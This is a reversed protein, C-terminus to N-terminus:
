RLPIRGAATAGGRYFMVFVSVTLLIALFGLGFGSLAPVTPVTPTIQPTNAFTWTIIDHNEYGAGTGASFGAYATNQGLISALNIPYNNLATFSAGEAPDTLTVTLASGNYSINVTWLDGNSLCGPQQYTGFVCNGIGYVNVLATDTVNGDTDIAVHNSSTDDAGNEFTDFEIGISNGALGGYGLAYGGQGLGTTNTTLVFVFGDAPDVGGANTIRFQFQTSFTAGNGLPLPTTYYVGGSQGVASPTIRLVNGDSTNAIAANGTLTLGTTTGNYSYLVGSQAQAMLSFLACLAAAVIPPSLRVTQM